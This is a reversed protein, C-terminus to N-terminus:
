VEVAERVLAGKTVESVMEILCQIEASSFQEDDLCATRGAMEIIMGIKPVRDPEIAGVSTLTSYTQAIDNALENLPCGPNRPLGRSHCLSSLWEDFAAIALVCAAWLRRSAQLVLASATAFDVQHPSLFHTKVEALRDDAYRRYLTRVANPAVLYHQMEAPWWFNVSIAIGTSRVHHWWFAPLYLLDGPKVVFRLASAKTYEPYKELDPQDVDVNSLHAMAVDPPYAYLYETDDPSFITFHKEGQLQAFLNHSNDYHLPSTTGRGFWLNIDPNPFQSIWEPVRIDDLLEPLSQSLSQQMVYIGRNADNGAILRAAQAFDMEQESFARRQEPDPTLNYAFNGKEDPFSVTVRRNALASAL